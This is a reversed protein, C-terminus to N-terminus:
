PTEMPISEVPSPAGSTSGLDLPASIGKAARWWQRTIEFFVPYELSMLGEATPKVDDWNWRVIHEALIAAGEANEAEGLASM